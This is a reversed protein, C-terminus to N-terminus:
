RQLKAALPLVNTDRTYREAEFSTGPPPPQDSVHWGGDADQWRYVTTAQLERGLKTRAAWDPLEEPHLSVYVAGAGLGGLIVALWAIRRQWPRSTRHLAMEIPTM